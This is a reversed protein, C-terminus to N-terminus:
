EWDQTKRSRPKRKTNRKTSKAKTVNKAKATIKEKKVVENKIGVAESYEKYTIPECGRNECYKLVDEYSYISEETLFNSITRRNRELWYKLKISM